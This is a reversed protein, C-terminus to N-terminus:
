PLQTLADYVEQNFNTSHRPGPEVVFLTKGRVYYASGEPLASLLKRNAALIAANADTYSVLCVRSDSEGRSVAACNVQGRGRAEIPYDNRQDFAGVTMGKAVLANRTRKMLNADSEPDCASSGVIVAMVITLVISNRTM